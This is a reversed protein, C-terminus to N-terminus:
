ADASNDKANWYGNTGRYTNSSDYDYPLAEAQSLICIRCDIPQAPDARSLSTISDQCEVKSNSSRESSCKAVFHGLEPVPDRGPVVLVVAVPAV